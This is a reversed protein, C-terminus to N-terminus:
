DSLRKLVLVQGSTSYKNYVTTYDSRIKGWQANLTAASREEAIKNPDFAADDACGTADIIDYTTGDVDNFMTELTGGSAFDDNDEELDSRSKRKEKAEQLSMAQAARPDTMVYVLRIKEDPTFSKARDKTQDKAM